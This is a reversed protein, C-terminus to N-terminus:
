YTLLKLLNLTAIRTKKSVIFPPELSRPVTNAYCDLRTKEYRNIDIKKIKNEIPGTEEEMYFLTSM